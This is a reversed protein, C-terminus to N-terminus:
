DDLESAVVAVCDGREVAAVARRCWLMGSVSALVPVPERLPDDIFVVQGLPQGEEVMQGLEVLPEYLGDATVKHYRGPGEVSLIRSKPGPETAEIVGVHALLNRVGREAVQVTDVSLRGGGGIETSLFLVGRREAATDLMGDPDLEDILLGFPAGFARLAAVTRAHQQPDDLRHAIASPQFELSSGGSHLDLAVDAMELLVSDVYHAIMETMTGGARGPFSRNLNGNDIPSVRTGARAAPFNLAPIIIVRGQVAEPELQAVLKTLAVQGEYEDGHNGATLLVTPGTGNQICAIPILMSGWASSHRSYPVDLHAVQKGGRSFDIDTRIRSKM